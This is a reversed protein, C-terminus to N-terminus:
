PNTSHHPEPTGTSTPQSPDRRAAYRRRKSSEAMGVATGVVFFILGNVILAPVFNQNNDLAGYLNLGPCLLLYGIVGPLVLLGEFDPGSAGLGAIAILALPLVTGALVFVVQVKITIPWNSWKPLPM